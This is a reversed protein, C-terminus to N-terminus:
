IQKALSVIHEETTNHSGNCIETVFIGNTDNVSKKSQLGKWNCFLLRHLGVVLRM